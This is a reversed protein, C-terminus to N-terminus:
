EHGEAYAALQASVDLTRSGRAKLEDLVHKIQHSQGAPLILVADPTAVVTLNEVGAMAILPGESRASCGSTGVAIVEGVLRNGAADCDMLDHLADWSGVDSWGMEVPIVAIKEAKEM